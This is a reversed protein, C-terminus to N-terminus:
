RRHRWADLRGGWRTLRLRFVPGRTRPTINTRRLRLPDTRGLDNHGDLTTFALRFGLEELVGVIKDDHSGNPYCFVPLASGLERTLDTQCASVERRVEDPTLRTLIPHNQTHGALCLGRESLRRLTDWSMVTPRPDPEPGFARMVQEVLRAADAHRISKLHDQLRKLSGRRHQESELSLAGLSPVDIRRLDTRTFARYLRDSWFSREPRDPFGTPVFVTAPLGARELIPWAHDAFDAYADDFTIMVARRPLRSGRDLTELVQPMSVVSYSRALRDMQREFERPIASILRPNLHPSDTPGAVRHYTLVRLNRTM